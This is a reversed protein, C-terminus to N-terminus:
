WGTRSNGASMETCDYCDEGSIYEFCIRVYKLSLRDFLEINSCIILSEFLEVLRLNNNNTSFQQELRM